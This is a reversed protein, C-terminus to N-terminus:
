LSLEFYAAGPLPNHTYPAIERFGARRYLRIAPHMSAITDLRMTKYGLARGSNIIESVLKEGLGAGRHAPDVYLRKMECIGEGLDRLAVCGLSQTDLMALLLEGVPPAYKGPLSALEEDFGQFCLSFNLSAAYARFLVKVQQLHESSRAPIILENLKGSSM